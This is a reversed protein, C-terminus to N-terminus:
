ELTGLMSAIFNIQGEHYSMNWYPYALIEAVTQSGWPMDVVVALDSDPAAAIAAAVKATNDDLLGKIKEWGGKVVEAKEEFYGGFRGPNWAKTQIMEVTYGNLLACEAVMDLASRSKDEASWARKDEPIRLFATQLNTSTKTSAESLFSQLTISM